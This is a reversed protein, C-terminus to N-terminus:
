FMQSPIVQNCKPAHFTRVAVKFHMQLSENVSTRFTTLQQPQLLLQAAADQSGQAILYGYLLTVVARRERLVDTLSDGAQLNPAHFTRVAVKFHMQLSENVSTRFTTLTSHNYSSCPLQM